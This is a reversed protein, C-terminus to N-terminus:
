GKRLEEKFQSTAIKNEEIIDLLASGVPAVNEKEINFATYEKQVDFSSCQECQPKETYKWLITQSKCSKCKYLFKPM